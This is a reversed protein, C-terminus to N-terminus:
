RELLGLTKMIWGRLGHLGMLLRFPYNGALQHDSWIRCAPLAAKLDLVSERDVGTGMLDLQRLRRLKKLHQLARGMLPNSGLNLIELSRLGAVTEIGNGTIRNNNLSLYRAEFNELYGLDDDTV